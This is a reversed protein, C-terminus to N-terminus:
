NGGGRGVVGLYGATTEDLGFVSIDAGHRVLLQITHKSGETLSQRLAIALPHDRSTTLALTLHLDNPNPNPNHNM